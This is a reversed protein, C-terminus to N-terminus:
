RHDGGVHVGRVDALDPWLDDPGPFVVTAARRAFVEAAQALHLAKKPPRALLGGFAQLALPLNAGRGWTGRVACAKLTGAATHAVLYRLLESDIERCVLLFAEGAQAIMELLAQWDALPPQAADTLLVRARKLHVTWPVSWPDATDRLFQPSWAGGLLLGKRPAVVTEFREGPVCWILRTDPVARRLEALLEVLDPFDASM